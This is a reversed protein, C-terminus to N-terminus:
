NMLAAKLKEFIAQIIDPGFYGVVISMVSNPFNYESHMISYVYGSLVGILLHRFSEYTKLDEWTKSWILVYLLAGILGLFAFRLSEIM